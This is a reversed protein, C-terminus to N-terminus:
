GDKNEKFYDKARRICHNGSLCHRGAKYNCGDCSAESQQYMEWAEELEPTWKVFEGDECEEDHWCGFGNVHVDYRKLKDM